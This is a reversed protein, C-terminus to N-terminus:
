RAQCLHRIQRVLAFPLALVWRLEVMLEALGAVVVLVAWVLGYLAGGLVMAALEILCEGLVALSILSFDTLLSFFVDCILM